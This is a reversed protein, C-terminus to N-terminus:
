NELICERVVESFFICYPVSKESNIALHRLKRAQKGGLGLRQCPSHVDLAPRVDLIQNGFVEASGIVSSLNLTKPNLNKKGEKM